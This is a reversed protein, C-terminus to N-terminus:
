MQQQLNNDETAINNAKSLGDYETDPRKLVWKKNHGSSTTHNTSTAYSAATSKSVSTASNKDSSLNQSKDNEDGIGSKNKQYTITLSYTQM